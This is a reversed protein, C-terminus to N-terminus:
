FVPSPLGRARPRASVPRLRKSAHDGAIATSRSRSRTGSPSHSIAAGSIGGNLGRRCPPPVAGTASRFTNQAITYASVVDHAHCRKGGQKPTLGAVACRRNAAQVLAPKHRRRWLSTRSRSPAAPDISQDAASTLGAETRAFLPVLEYPQWSSEGSPRRPSPTTARTRTSVACPPSRSSSGSRWTWSCGFCGWVPALSGPLWKPTEPRWPGSPYGFATIAADPTLPALPVGPVQSLPPNQVM